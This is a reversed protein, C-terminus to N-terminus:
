GDQPAELEGTIRVHRGAFQELWEERPNIATLDFDVWISSQSTGIGCDRSESKPIHNISTGEFELSLWGLISVSQGALEPLRDIADNVSIPYNM